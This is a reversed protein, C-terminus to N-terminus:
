RGRVELVQNTVNANVSGRVNVYDGVQLVNVNGVVRLASGDGTTVRVGWFAITALLGVVCVRYVVVGVRYVVTWWAIQPGPPRLRRVVFESSLPVELPREYLEESM